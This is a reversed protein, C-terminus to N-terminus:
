RTISYQVEFSFNKAFGIIFDIVSLSTQSKKIEKKKVRLMGIGSLTFFNLEIKIKMSRQPAEFSKIFVKFIKM